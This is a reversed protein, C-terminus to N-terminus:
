HRHPNGDTQISHINRLPNIIIGPTLYANSDQRYKYLRSKYECNKPLLLLASDIGLLDFVSLLLSRTNPLLM